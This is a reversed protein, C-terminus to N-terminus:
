SWGLYRPSHTATGVEAVADTGNSTNPSLSLMKGHGNELVSRGGWLTAKADHFGAAGDNILYGAWWDNPTGERFVLLVGNDLGLSQVGIFM